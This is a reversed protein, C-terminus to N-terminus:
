TKSNSRRESKWITVAGLKESCKKRITLHDKTIESEPHFPRISHRRSDNRTRKKMNQHNETEIKEVVHM